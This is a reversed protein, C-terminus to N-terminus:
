PKPGRMEYRQVVRRRETPDPIFDVLCKACFGFYFIHDETGDVLHPQYGHEWCIAKETRVKM